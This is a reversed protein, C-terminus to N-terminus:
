TSPYPLPVHGRSIERSARPRKATSPQRLTPRYYPFLPLRHPPLLLPHLNNLSRLPLNTPELLIPQTASVFPLALSRSRPRIFLPSSSTNVPHSTPFHPFLSHKTLSSFPTHSSLASASSPFSIPLLCQRPQYTKLAEKKLSNHLLKRRLVWERGFPTVVLANNRSFLEGFVPARPRSSYKNGRKELLEYAIEPSSIVLVPKQGMWITLLGGYTRSLTSLYLYLNKPPLSLLNGLFPIPRPGPPLHRRKSTTSLTLLIPLLILTLPLIWPSLPPILASISMKSTQSTKPQFLLRTSSKASSATTRSSVERIELSNLLINREQSLNLLDESPSTGITDETLIQASTRVRMRSFLIERQVKNECRGVFGMLYVMGKM